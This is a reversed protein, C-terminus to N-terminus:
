QDLLPTGFNYFSFTGEALLEDKENFVEVGYVAITKGYKKEKAVAILKKVQIAPSLYHFDGSITTMRNGRSAAASGGITDALAFLCGGHISQIVNEHHEEVAMEGKAYGISLETTVIGMYNGFKSNKNRFELIKNCDVM